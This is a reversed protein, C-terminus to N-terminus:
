QCDVTLTQDTTSCSNGVGGWMTGVSACPRVTHINGSTSCDCTGSVTSARLEFMGMCNATSWYYGNCSTSVAAGTKIAQCITDATAGTCTIGGTVDLSGSLKVATFSGTLSSQFTGWNTCQAAPVTNGIFAGSYSYTNKAFVATCTKAAATSATVSTTADMGSCAGSWEQFMYGADPKATLTVVTTDPYAEGCDGPCSIGAPSSGVTGSGEITVTVNSPTCAVEVVQPSTGTGCADSIVSGQYGPTSSYCPRAIYDNAGGCNCSGAATGAHLAVGGCTGVDWVKGGCSVNTLTSGARLAQCLSNASVGTCTVGAPDSSGRITIASYITPASLSGRYATWNTCQSSDYVANTFAGRYLTPTGASTFAATCSTAASMTVTAQLATGFADCAGGWSSFTEGSGPVATLVVSAGANFAAGCVSGCAIGGPASVVTGRGSVELSLQYTTLTFTPYCTRTTDMTVSASPAVGSCSGTWGGFSYGSNPKATLIVVTGYTYSDSCTGSTGACAIGGATGAVDSNVTGGAAFSVTLTQRAAFTASCTYSGNMEMTIPSTRGTCGSGATGSWGTFVYGSTPTATLQVIAGSSYNAQCVGSGNTCEIGGVNSMITGSGSSTGVSLTNTTFTATCSKAANMSVMATLSTGAGSCAGAWGNFVYNTAPAATLTVEQGVTAYTASCNAGGNTLCNIGGLDSTVTGGGSPSLYVTLTNLAFNAYCAKSGTMTVETTLSTGTCNGDWGTFVYNAAPAATLAVAAGYTGVNVACGTGGYTTCSIGAPNSTVTGGGAPNVYATLTNTSFAATCSRSGSMTVTTTLATGTCNGSWGTFVYGSAPAATLTVVDGYTAFNASCGTGSSTCSISGKNSTVTGGASPSVYVTLTNTTFNAYCARSASMTVTISATTGTCGTGSWSSFVYGTAPAATLTVATNLAYNAACGTGGAATTCSIGGVNSTVTGTGTPSVYVTLTNTTFNATCTKAGNMTVTATTPVLQSATCNGTWGTFMYGSATNPAATLTVVQQTVFNASCGTGGATTCSISGVDSTVTGGGTPSVNVTLTNTSFNAVCATTGTVSVTATTATGACSGSWGTFVYNTAPVATLTVSAATAFTQSCTGGTNSCSIGEPTSTVTGAGSVTVNLTNTQFVASCTRATAMVVTATSGTGTCNGSWGAFRHTADPTATLTVTSNLPFTSTCTDGCSVGAPASTVTGGGSNIVTLSPNQSVFNAVCYRAASMTVTTTAITGSCNGSWNSFVYGTDPTATLTVSSSVGYAANCSTGPCDIGVPSSAVKGNGNTSVTLNYQNTVQQIRNFTATCYKDTGSLLVDVGSSGKCDGSWGAFVSGADPMAQLSVTTGNAVVDRCYSGCNVVSDNSTVTGTGNGNRSIWLSSSGNPATFQAWCYMDSTVKVTITPTTGSCSGMWNSFVWGATPTATLTIATGNELSTQCSRGQNTCSMSTDTSTLAGGGASGMLVTYLPSPTTTFSSAVSSASGASNTALVKWYYTSAAALYGRPVSLTKLATSSRLIVRSFAADSALQVDYSVQSLAGNTDTWTLAPDIAVGAAGTAPSVLTPAVPATVAATTNITNGRVNATVSGNLPTTDGELHKCAFTPGPDHLNVGWTGAAARIKLEYITHPTAVNPSPGYSAGGVVDTSTADLTVGNKSVEVHQDGYARIVWRETGGGTWVSFQNYCDPDINEANYFWDNLVHLDTGDFDAYFYTYMGKAPKVDYWECAGSAAAADAAAAASRSVPLRDSAADPDAALSADAQANVQADHSAGADLDPEVVESADKDAAADAAGADAATTEAFCDTFKGDPVHKYASGINAPPAAAVPGTTFQYSSGGSGAAVRQGDRGTVQAVDLMCPAQAPLAAAPQFRLTLNDPTVYPRGAIVQGACWLKVTQSTVSAPDIQKSFTVPIQGSLPFSKTVLDPVRGALVPPIGRVSGKLRDGMMVNGGVIAMQSPLTGRNTTVARPQAFSSVDITSVFNRDLGVLLTRGFLRAASVDKIEASRNIVIPAAPKYYDIVHMGIGNSLGIVKSGRAMMAKLAGGMAITSARSFVGTTSASWAEIDGNPYGLFLAGAGATIQSPQRLLATPKEPILSYGFTGFSLTFSRLTSGSLAFVRNGIRALRVSGTASSAGALSLSGSAAGADGTAAVVKLEPVTVQAVAAMTAVNALPMVSLTGSADAVYVLNQADDHEIALVKGGTSFPGYMKPIASIPEGLDTVSFGSTEHILFVYQGVSVTEAVPSAYTVAALEPAEPAEDLGMPPTTTPTPQEEDTTINCAALVLSMAMGLYTFSRRLGGRGFICDTM